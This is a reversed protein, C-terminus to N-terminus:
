IWLSHNKKEFKRKGNKKLNKKQKMKILIHLFRKVSVLFYRSVLLNDNTHLLLFVHEYCQIVFINFIDLIMFLSKKRLDEKKWKRM